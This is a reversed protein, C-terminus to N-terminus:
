NNKILKKTKNQSYLYEEIHMQHGYDDIDDIEHMKHYMKMFLTNFPKYSSGSNRFRIPIYRPTNFDRCCVDEYPQIYFNLEFSDKERKIKLINSAEHNTEDSYWTIINDNFLENYNSRNFERYSKKQYEIEEETEYFQLLMEGFININEIDDFLEEFLKYVAYNEKTITFSHHDSDNKSRIVWYLDLNGAYLVIFKKDTEEFSITLGSESDEKVVKM